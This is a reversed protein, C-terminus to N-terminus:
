RKRVALLFGSFILAASFGTKPGLKEGYFFLAIISVVVPQLYSFLAVRSSPTRSLAWNSLLYPALTGGILVYLITPAQDRVRDLPGVDPWHPISLMALLLSGVMFIWATGWLQDYTRLFRHGLTLFMAYSASSGMVLLDGMLSSSEPESDGELRLLLVGITALCFGIWSSWGGQEQRRISVLALTFIPTLSTLISAHTTSTLSLGVQICTQNLVVGLIALPIVARLFERSLPPSPGSVGRAILTFLFATILTRVSAWVLPPWVQIVEKTMSYNIGFLIQVLVLAGVVSRNQRQNESM